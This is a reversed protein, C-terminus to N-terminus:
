ENIDDTNETIRLAGLCESGLVSLITLYDDERAHIWGAVSKRAFGEPLLGEFFNRTREASFPQVSIPLSISIPPLVAAIYENDYAFQANDPTDGVIKGVYKESGSIEIYVYM